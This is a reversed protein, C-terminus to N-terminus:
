WPCKYAFSQIHAAIAATTAQQLEQSRPQYSYVIRRFTHGCALILLHFAGNASCWHQDLLKHSLALQRPEQPRPETLGLHVALISLSVDILDSWRDPFDASAILSISEAIQARIAKDSPTSLQIM